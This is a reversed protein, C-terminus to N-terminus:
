IGVRSPCDIRQLSRRAKWFRVVRLCDPPRVSMVHAELPRSRPPACRPPCQQGSYSVAPGWKHRAFTQVYIAGGSTHAPTGARGLPAQAQTGEPDARPTPLWGSESGHASVLRPPTSSLSRGEHCTSESLARQMLVMFRPRGFPCRPGRFGELDEEWRAPPFASGAFGRHFFRMDLCTGVHPVVTCGTPM